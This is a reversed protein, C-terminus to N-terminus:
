NLRGSLLSTWETDPFQPCCPSNVLSARALKIDHSFNELALQTQRLSASLTTPAEEEKIVWPLVSTDLQRRPLFREDDSLPSTSRKSASSPGSPRREPVPSHHTDGAAHGGPSTDGGSYDGGGLPETQEGGHLAATSRFREFSDLIAVYSGFATIFSDDGPGIDSDSLASLILLIAASKDLEGARFRETTTTCRRSIDSSFPAASGSISEGDGREEIEVLKEGNRQDGGSEREDEQTEELANRRTSTM